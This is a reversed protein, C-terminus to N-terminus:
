RKHKDFAFLVSFGREVDSCGLSVLLNDRIQKRASGIGVDAIM